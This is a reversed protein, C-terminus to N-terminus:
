FGLTLRACFRLKAALVRWLGAAGPLATRPVGCWGAPSLSTLGLTRSAWCLALGQALDGGGAM